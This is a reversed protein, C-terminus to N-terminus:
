ASKFYNGFILIPVEKYSGDSIPAKFKSVMAGYYCKITFLKQSVTCSKSFSGSFSQLDIIDQDRLQCLFISDDM